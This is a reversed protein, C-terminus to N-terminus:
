KIFIRIVEIFLFILFLLCLCKLSSSIDKLNIEVNHLKYIVTEIFNEKEREMKNIEVLNVVINL